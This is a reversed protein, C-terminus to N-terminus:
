FRFYGTSLRYFIEGLNQAGVAHLSISSWSLPMCLVIWLSDVSITSLRYTNSNQGAHPQRVPQHFGTPLRRLALTWATQLSHVQAYVGPASEETRIYFKERHIIRSATRRSECIQVSDTRSITKGQRRSARRVPSETEWLPYLM